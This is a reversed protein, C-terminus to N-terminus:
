VSYEDLDYKKRKLHIADEGELLEIERRINWAVTDAAYNQAQIQERYHKDVINVVKEKNIFVEDYSTMLNVEDLSNLLLNLLLQKTEKGIAVTCVEQVYDRKVLGLKHTHGLTVVTTNDDKKIVGVANVQPISVTEIDKQAAENQEINKQMAEIEEAMSLQQLYHEKDQLIEHCQECLYTQKVEGKVVPCNEDGYKCGHYKCCHSIHVARDDIM